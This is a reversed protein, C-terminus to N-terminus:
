SYLFSKDKFPLKSDDVMSKYSIEKILYRDRDCGTINISLLEKLLISVVGNGCGIDLVKDNKMVWQKYTNAILKVRIPTIIEAIKM